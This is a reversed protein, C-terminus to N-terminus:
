LDKKDSGFINFNFDSLRKRSKKSRKNKSAPKQQGKRELQSVAPGADPALKNRFEEYDNRPKADYISSISDANIVRAMFISKTSSKKLMGLDSLRETKGFASFSFFLIVLMATKTKM